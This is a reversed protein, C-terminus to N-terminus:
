PAVPLTIRFRRGEGAEVRIGGGHAEVIARSILLTLRSDDLLNTVSRQFLHEASELAPGTDDEVAVTAHGDSEVRVRVTIHRSPAREVVSAVMNGVLSNLVFVLEEADGRVTIPAPAPEFRLDAGGAATLPALRGVASALLANLELPRRGGREGALATRLERLTAAARQAQAVVKELDSTLAATDARGRRLAQLDAECYSAIATLPQSLEHTLTSVFERVTYWIRMRARDASADASQRPGTDASEDDRVTSEPPPEITSGM